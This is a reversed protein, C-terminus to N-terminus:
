VNIMSGEGDALQDSKSFLKGASARIKEQARLRGV